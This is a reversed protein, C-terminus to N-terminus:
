EMKRAQRQTLEEVDKDAPSGGLEQQIAKMQQNLFYEKQQKDIEEKSRNQIQHKLEQLQLDKNLFKLIVKGREVIDQIELINQKEVISISLNSTIFNM